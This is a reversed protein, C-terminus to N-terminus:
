VGAPKEGPYFAFVRGTSPHRKVRESFGELCPADCIPNALSDCLLQKTMRIRSQRRVDVRANGSQVKVAFHIFERPDMVCM